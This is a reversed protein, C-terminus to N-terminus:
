EQMYSLWKKEFVSISDFTESYASKLAQEIAEAAKRTDLEFPSFPREDEPDSNDYLIVIPEQM